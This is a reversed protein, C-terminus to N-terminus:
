RGFVSGLIKPCTRLLCAFNITLESGFGKVLSQIWNRLGAGNAAVFRRWFYKARKWLIEIRNLEPSHPPLYYLYLGQRAWRRRQKDKADGKHVAANDLLIIRPM